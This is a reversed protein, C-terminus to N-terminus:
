SHKKIVTLLRDETFYELEDYWKMGHGKINANPLAGFKDLFALLLGRELKKWIEVGQRRQCSVVYFDLSIVGRQRLLKSGREVASEAIRAAGKKTTGIYGIKSSGRPYQFRKNAVAIYVLHEVLLASRDISIAPENSIQITLKAM